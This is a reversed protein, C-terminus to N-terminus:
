KQKVEKGLKEDTQIITNLVHLYVIKDKLSVDRSIANLFHRVNKECAKLVQSGKKTIALIHARKDTEHDFRDILGKDYLRETLVTIFPRKVGLLEAVHAPQVDDGDEVLCLLKWEPIVLDYPQLAEALRKELARYAKGQLLATKYSKM